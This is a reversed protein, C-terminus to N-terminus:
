KVREVFEGTRTDVRVSEGEEIFLPVKVVLGTELTAPKQVNTVTDGRSGPQTETVELEVTTPLDIGVPIDAHFNVKVRQNHKLYQMEESVLDADFHTEEWTETDMFVFYDGEQYTYELERTEIFADEVRDTSRFRYNIKTGSSLSRMAVQIMGRKNGPTLHTTTLIVFLEGEHKIIKGKKLQTANLM